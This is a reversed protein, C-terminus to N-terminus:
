ARIMKTASPAVKSTLPRGQTGCSTGSGARQWFEHQLDHPKVREVGLVM